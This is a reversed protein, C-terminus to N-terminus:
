GLFRAFTQVVDAAAQPEEEVLASRKDDYTGRVGVREGRPALSDGCRMAAARVYEAETRAARLSPTGVVSHLDV